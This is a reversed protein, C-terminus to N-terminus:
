QGPGPATRKATATVAEYAEHLAPKGKSVDEGVTALTKMM